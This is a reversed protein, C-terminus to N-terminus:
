RQRDEDATNAMHVFCRNIIKFMGSRVKVDIRSHITWVLMKSCTQEFCSSCINFGFLLLQRWEVRMGLGFGVKPAFDDNSRGEMVLQLM